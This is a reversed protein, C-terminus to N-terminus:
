WRASAPITAVNDKTLISYPMLLHGQDPVDKASVGGSALVIGASAAFRGQQWVDTYQTGTLEGAEISTLAAKEGDNGFITLKSLIGKAKAVDVVGLAMDDNVGYVGKINPNAAWMASFVDGATKRDWNANQDAAIKVNPYKAKMGDVFGNTRLDRITIGPPANIIVVDGSGGIAAGMKAAIDQAGYYHNMEVHAAHTETADINLTIVPIGAAKAKKISPALGVSDAPQLFIVDVGGSIATNMLNIQTAASNQGDLLQFDINKQQAAIEQLGQGWATSTAQPQIQIWVMKYHSKATGGSAAAPKAATKSKSTCAGLLPSVLAAAGITASVGLFRRRDFGTAPSDDTATMTKQEKDRVSPRFV